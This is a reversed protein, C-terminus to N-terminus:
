LGDSPNDKRWDLAAYYDLRDIDEKLTAFCVRLQDQIKYMRKRAKCNLDRSKEDKMTSLYGCYEAYLALDDILMTYPKHQLETAFSEDSEDMRIVDWRDFSFPVTKTIKVKKKPMKIRWQKSLKLNM